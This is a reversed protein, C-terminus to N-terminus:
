TQNCVAKGNGLVKFELIVNNDGLSGVVKEKNVLEERNTLILGLIVSGKTERKVKQSIFNVALCTM